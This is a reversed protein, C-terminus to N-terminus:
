AVRRTRLQRTVLVIVTAILAYAALAAPWGLLMPYPAALAGVACVLMISWRRRSAGFALAVAVSVLLLGMSILAVGFGLYVGTASDRGEAYERSVMIAGWWLLPVAPLLLVLGALRRRM